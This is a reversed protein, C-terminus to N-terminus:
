IERKLDDILKSIPRVYDKLGVHKSAHKLIRSEDPLYFIHRQGGLQVVKEDSLDEDYVVVHYLYKIKFNSLINGEASSLQKWRERLTRKCSIGIYWKDKTLIWKDIEIDARFHEPKQHTPIKFFKLIFSTVDELSGGARTKRKQGVRREFEQVFATLIIDKDLESLNFRENLLVRLITFAKVIEVREATLSGKVGLDDWLRIITGLGQLGRVELFSKAFNLTFEKDDNPINQIAQNIPIMVNECTLVFVEVDETTQIIDSLDDILKNVRRIRSHANKFRDRLITALSHKQLELIEEKKLNKNEQAIVRLTSAILSLLKSDAGIGGYKDTNILMRAFWYVNQWKNDILSIDNKM